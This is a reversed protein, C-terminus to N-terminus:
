LKSFLIKKIFVEPLQLKNEYEKSELYSLYTTYPIFKDKFFSKINEISKDIGETHYWRLEKEYEDLLDHIHKTDDDDDKNEDDEDCLSEHLFVCVMSHIWAFEEGNKMSRIQCYFISNRMEEVKQQKIIKKITEM